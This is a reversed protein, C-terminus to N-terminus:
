QGIPGTGPPRGMLYAEHSLANRRYKEFLAAVLDPRADALNHAEGPDTQLDFLMVTGAARDFILKHRFSEIIGQNDFYTALMVDRQWYRAATSRDVDGALLPTLSIGPLAKTSEANGHAVGALSMVTPLLDIQMVPQDVRVGRPMGPAKVILPIRLAPDYLFAVHQVHENEYWQYGHDGVLMILTDDYRGSSKLAEVIAGVQRDTRTVVQLYRAYAEPRRGDPLVADSEYIGLGEAFGLQHARELDTRRWPEHTDNMHESLFFRAGPRLDDIFDLMRSTRKDGRWVGSQAEAPSVWTTVGASAPRWASAQLSEPVFLGAFPEMDPHCWRDLGALQLVEYLSANNAKQTLLDRYRLEGLNDDRGSNIALWGQWTAPYHARANTFVAGDRAIADIHPTAVVPQGHSDVPHRLGYASIAAPAIGELYLLLVSPFRQAAAADAVVFHDRVPALRSPTRFGPGVISPDGDDPDPGHFVASAGDRDADFLWHALRVEFRHRRDFEFTRALVNKGVLDWGWFPWSALVTLGLLIAVVAATLTRAVFGPGTAAAVAVPLLWRREVLHYALWAWLLSVLVQASPVVTGHYLGRWEPLAYWDDMVATIWTLAIVHVSTMAMLRGRATEISRCGLVFRRLIPYTAFLTFSWLVVEGASRTPTNLAGAEIRDLDRGLTVLCALMPLTLALQGWVGLAAPLIWSQDVAFEPWLGILWPLTLLASWTLGLLVALRRVRADHLRIFWLIAMGGGAALLAFFASSSLMVLSASLAEGPALFRAYDHGGNLSPLWFILHTVCAGALAAVAGLCLAAAVQIPRRRAVRSPDPTPIAPWRDLAAGAQLWTSAAAFALALWDLIGPTQLLNTGDSVPAFRSSLLTLIVAAATTAWLLVARWSRVRFGLVTGLTAAYSVGIGLFLQWLTGYHVLASRLLPVNELDIIAVVSSSNIARFGTLLVMLSMLLLWHIALAAFGSM